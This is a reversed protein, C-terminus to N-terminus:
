PITLYIVGTDSYVAYCAPRVDSPMMFLSDVVEELAGSHAGADLTVRAM